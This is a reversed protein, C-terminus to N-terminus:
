ELIDLNMTPLIVRDGDDLDIEACRARLGNPLVFGESRFGLFRGIKGIHPARIVRVKQGPSLLGSERVYASDETSPLPIVVEPRNGMFHDWQQANVVVNRRENTSLLKYAAMNMPINGFGDILVIPFSVKFAKPILEPDMSALILGRVPLDMAADLTDASKCYGGMVISGRMSIDLQDPLLEDEPSHALVNMLGDDIFGNGWVGQILSGSTEVIVGREGILESITGPLGAKLEFPASDVEIMVQGGVAVIVRGNQPARIVRKALGVPGAIVDGETVREGAKFKIHADAQDESLGLGKAVDLILHKPNLKAEAVIDNTDVKQGRRVLVRGPIPLVRERNINASPLFHTVSSVM